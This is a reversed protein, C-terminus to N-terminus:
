RKPPVVQIELVSVPENTPLTGTQQVAVAGLTGSQEYNLQQRNAASNQNLLQARFMGANRAPLEVYVNNSISRTVNIRGNLAMAVQAADSRVQKLDESEVIITEAPAESKDALVASAGLAYAGGAELPAPPSASAVSVEDKEAKTEDAARRAPQLEKQVVVAPAKTKALAPEQLERGGPRTRQLFIAAFGVVFLALAAVRVPWGGWVTRRPQEHLRDRIGALFQRDPQAKPLAAVGAALHRLEAVRARCAACGAMHTEVAAQRAAPLEGDVFASLDVAIDQCDNM